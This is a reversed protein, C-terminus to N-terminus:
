RLADMTELLENVGDAVADAADELGFNRNLENRIRVVPIAAARAAEIAKEADELVLADEPAVGLTELARLFIDPAPKTRLGDGGVITPVPADGHRLITEVIERYSNSAIVFSRAGPEAADSLRRLLTAAGDFLPVRGAECLARYAVRKREIVEGADIHTLGHRRLHGAVGEGRSAWYLWYDAESVTVNWRSFAQNTAERFWPESHALVGDFDFLLARARQWTARLQHRRESM